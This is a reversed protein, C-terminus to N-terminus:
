NWNLTSVGPVDAVDSNNLADDLILSFNSPIWFNQQRLMDEEFVGRRM